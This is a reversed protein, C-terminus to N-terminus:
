TTRASRNLKGVTTAWESRTAGPCAFAKKTPLFPSSVFIRRYQERADDRFQESLRDFFRYISRIFLLYGVLAVVGVPVGAWVGFCLDALGIAGMSLIPYIILATLWCCRAVITRKDKKM